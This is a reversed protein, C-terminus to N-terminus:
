SAKCNELFTHFADIIVTSHRSLNEMMYALARGMNNVLDFSHEQLQILAPAVHSYLMLFHSM